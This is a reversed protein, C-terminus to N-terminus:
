PEDGGGPVYARLSPDLLRGWEEDFPHVEHVEQGDREVPYGRNAWEFISGELNSVNTFGQERLREVLQSSRYGVSCYAVIPTARDLGELLEPTETGPEVRIAGPLHSVAYEREERVDLLVPKVGKNAELERELEEVSIQPAEPFDARVWSKVSEWDRGSGRRCSVAGLFLFVFALTVVPWRM